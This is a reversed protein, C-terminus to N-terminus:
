PRDGRPMPTDTPPTGRLPQGTLREADVLASQYAAQADVLRNRADFLARRADLVEILSFKGRQYGTSIGGYATRAAPLVNDRLISVAEFAASLREFSQRISSVARVEAAQRQFASKALQEQADLVNGQNLGFVPLPLGVGGVFAIGGGNSNSGLGGNLTSSDVFAAGPGYNRVGANITIDPVNRSREVALRAERQGIETEWRAVDPNQSSFALLSPLPPPRAIDSGLDGEAQDFRPERSGWNAALRVRAAQLERRAQELAVQSNLLAVQARREELPSIGGARVREAVAGHFQQELRFTDEALAVRQQAALVDMFARATAAFVDLRRTEYDWAALSADLRALRIRTARKAGLEVVQSLTVTGQYGRFAAHDRSGGFDEALVSIEPNPRYGAQVRRAEASRIDFSFQALDPSSTLAQALAQRLTLQGAPESLRTEGPALPAADPRPGRAAAAGGAVGGLGPPIVLDRGLPRPEPYDATPPAQTCGALSLAAAMTVRPFARRM